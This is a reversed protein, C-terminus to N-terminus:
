YDRRCFKWAALGVVVVEFLISTLVIWLWPRQERSIQRKKAEILVMEQTFMTDQQMSDVAPDFEFDDMEDEDQLVRQMLQRTEGTKPLPTKAWFAYGRWKAVSEAMERGMEARDRLSQEDGWREAYGERTTLDYGSFPDEFVVDDFAEESEDSAEAEAVADAADADEPETDTEDPEPTDAADPTDGPEETNDVNDGEDPESPDEDPNADPRPPLTQIYDARAEAVDAEVAASAQMELIIDDAFNVIFMGFWAVVTLIVALLTSRTVVGVLVCIAYLYSFYLLVIPIALFITPDWDSARVGIVIFGCVSFVAVQLAVFGLGLFYKTLFLRLRGIPKTLLTDIAGSTMLDPFLAATSFIALIIAGRTLWWKVGIEQFVGKYFAARADNLQDETMYQFQATLMEPLPITWGFASYGDRDLGMAAIIVMVLGSLIMTIWFLKKANLERYADLLLAYTQNM